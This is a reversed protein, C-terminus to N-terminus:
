RLRGSSIRQLATPDILRAVPYVNHAADWYPSRRYFFDLRARPSKAFAEDTKLRQEFQEKLAPDEGLMRQAIPEMVYAEFYEKREFIANFFGWALLSDPADPELLHVALKARPQDLPVVVTGAVFDRRQNVLVSKYQPIQRGEYPQQRFSVEEFRCSEVELSQPSGLRFFRVGHLELREIVEAWQPPILYAAPPTVAAAVRHRDHLETEVDVPTRTYEIVEEGTIRSQRLKLAYAKYTIPRSGDTRQIRLPVQGDYEGGRTRTCQEDAERIAERLSDPDRNLTKLTHVLLDYTVQVRQEYPKLAHAEVLVAPRNCVAGYGTSYRPGFTGVAYVGKSPDKRDRPGGYPLANWGAAKLPPLLGPYLVSKVWDAIAQATIQETTAAYLLHYRHDSGDTSHNDYLLDPEWANWLRLWAQMEVSDAKVFDRNLNLNTATVRWGMEKPGNQNIRSYPGFREHGDPNFIPLLLLNVHELLEARTGTILIDRALELSADRGMCEGPHICNQILFLLKGGRRAAQPTFSRDSSLILLPLERGEGSLGFSTYRAHPSANALRRCFDVVEAYRDTEAYNTCEARTRWQDPLADPSIYSMRDAAGCGIVTVTLIFTSFLAPQCRM